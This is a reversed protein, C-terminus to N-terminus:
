AEIRRCSSNLAKLALIKELEAVHRLM